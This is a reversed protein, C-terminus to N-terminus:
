CPLFWRACLPDTPSDKPPSAPNAPANPDQQQLLEAFAGEGPFVPEIRIIGGPGVIRRVSVPRVSVPPVQALGATTLALILTSLLLGRRTRHWDM